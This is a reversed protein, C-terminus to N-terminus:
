FTYKMSISNFSSTVEVSKFSFIVAAIGAAICAVGVINKRLKSDELDSSNFDKTMKKQFDIIIQIDKASSFCDWALVFSAAGLIWFARYPYEFKRISNLNGKIQNFPTPLAPASSWIGLNKSEAINQKGLLDSYYKKDITDILSGYGFLLFDEALNKNFYNGQRFFVVEKIKDNREHKVEIDYKKNLITNNEWELVEKAVNSYITNSDTLSPIFLGYITVKNGDNLEFLNTGIIRTVQQTKQPYASFIIFLSVISSLLIKM